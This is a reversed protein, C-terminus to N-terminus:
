KFLGEFMSVVFKIGGSSASELMGSASDAFKNVASSSGNGGGPLDSWLENYQEEYKKELSALKRIEELEKELQAIKRETATKPLWQEMEQEGDRVNSGPEASAPPKLENQSLQSQLPGHIREIGATSMEIGYLIIFTLAGGLLAWKWAKKRM